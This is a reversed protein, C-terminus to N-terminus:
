NDPARCTGDPPLVPCLRRYGAQGQRFRQRRRRVHRDVTRKGRGGPRGFGARRRLRFRPSESGRRTRARRHGLRDHSRHIARGAAHRRVRGTEGLCVSRLDDDNGVCAFVFDRDEAAERPTPASRGGYTEVWRAAVASTRNYVVADHGARALHGAMPFGMVGLGIFAVKSMERDQQQTSGQGRRGSGAM